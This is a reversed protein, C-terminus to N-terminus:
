RSHRNKHHKKRLRNQMACPRSLRRPPLASRRHHIGQNGPSFMASHSGLTSSFCLADAVADAVLCFQTIAYRDPVCDSVSTRLLDFPLERSGIGPHFEVPEVCFNRRTIATAEKQVQRLHWGTAQLSRTEHQRFVRPYQHTARRRYASVLISARSKRLM